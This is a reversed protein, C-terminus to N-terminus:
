MLGIEGSSDLWTRFATQATQNQMEGPSNDKFGLFWM